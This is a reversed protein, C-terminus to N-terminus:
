KKLLYMLSGKIDRELNIDNFNIRLNTKKYNSHVEVEIKRPWLLIRANPYYTLRIESANLGDDGWIINKIDEGTEAIANSLRITREMLTLTECAHKQFFEESTELYHCSQCQWMVVTKWKDHNCNNSILNENMM